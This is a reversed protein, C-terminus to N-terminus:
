YTKSFFIHLLSASIEVKDQWHSKSMKKCLCDFAKELIYNKVRFLSPPPPPILKLGLATKGFACKRSRPYLGVKKYCNINDFLHM